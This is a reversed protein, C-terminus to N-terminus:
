VGTVDPSRVAGKVIRKPDFQPLAEDLSSAEIGLVRLAATLTDRVHTEALTRLPNRVLERWVYRRM